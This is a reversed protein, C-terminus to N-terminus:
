SLRSPSCPCCDDTIPRHWGPGLPCLPLAPGAGLVLNTRGGGGQGPGEGQAELSLMVELRAEWGPESLGRSLGRAEVGGPPLSVAGSTARHRGLMWRSVPEDGWVGGDMWGEGGWGEMEEGGVGGAEWSKM